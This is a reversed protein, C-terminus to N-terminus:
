RTAVCRQINEQYRRHEGPEMAFSFVTRISSIVEEAVVNADALATQVQKQNKHM